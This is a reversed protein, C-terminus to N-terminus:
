QSAFFATDVEMDVLLTIVIDKSDDARTYCVVHCILDGDIDLTSIIRKRVTSRPGSPNWAREVIKQESGKLRDEWGEETYKHLLAVHSLSVHKSPKAM